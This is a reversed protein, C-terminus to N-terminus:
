EATNVQVSDGAQFRAAFTYRTRQIRLLACGACCVANYNTDKVVKAEKSVDSLAQAARHKLALEFRVQFLARGFLLLCLYLYSYMSVSEADRYM